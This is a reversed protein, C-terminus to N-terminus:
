ADRSNCATTIRQGNRGKITDFHEIIDIREATFIGKKENESVFGESVSDKVVLTQYKMNIHSLHAKLAMESLMTKQIDINLQEFNLLNDPNEYHTFLSHECKECLLKFTYANNIGTTKPLGKVDLKSLSIGYSVNGKESINKLIFQPVTHSNRASSIKKNCLICYDQKMMKHIEHFFYTAAKQKQYKSSM